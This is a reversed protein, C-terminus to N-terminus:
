EFSFRQNYEMLSSFLYKNPYRKKTKKGQDHIFLIYFRSNLDTNKNEANLKYLNM